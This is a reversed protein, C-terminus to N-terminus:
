KSKTIRKILEEFPDTFNQSSKKQDFIIRQTIIVDPPIRPLVRLLRVYYQSKTSIATILLKKEESPAVSISDAVIIFELSRLSDILGQRSFPTYLVKDVEMKYLSADLKLNKQDYIDRLLAKKLKVCLVFEEGSNLFFKKQPYLLDPYQQGFSKITLIILVIFQFVKM